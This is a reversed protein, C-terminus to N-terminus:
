YDQCLIDRKIKNVSSQWIFNYFMKNSKLIMEESPNPLAIFLHNLKATLLTKLITIREVM